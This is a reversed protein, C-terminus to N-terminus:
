EGMGIRLQDSNAIGQFHPHGAYDTAFEGLGPQPIDTTAVTASEEVQQPAHGSRNVTLRLSRIVAIVRDPHYETRTHRSRDPFVKRAAKTYLNKLKVASGFATHGEIWRALARHSAYSFRRGRLFCKHHIFIILRTRRSYLALNYKAIRIAAARYHLIELIGIGGTFLGPTSPQAHTIYPM